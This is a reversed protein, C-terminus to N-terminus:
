EFLFFQPRGYLRFDKVCGANKPNRLRIRISKVTLIEGLDVIVCHPFPCLQGRWQSHWFSRDDNDILSEAYGDKIQETNAYVVQWKDKPLVKGDSGILEIENICSHKNDYSSLTELCLHRLTKDYDLSFSQWGEKKELCGSFIIDGEDLVPTKDGYKTQLEIANKDEGLQDLIPKDLGAITRHGQDEMEFVVIENRGKKLWPGPVYLTQQPGINWFKGVSRGNIWVAGKGWGRTDIFTDGLKDLRFEGRFFGPQNVIDTNSWTFKSVKAQYLPLPSITWEKLEQGDLLVKETIGKLNHRIDGGYNMRGVNEVLIELRAPLETVDIKLKNQRHRRDLSGVQKGNLLVVAYDRLEKILLVGGKVKRNLHTEYHIYGFDQNVDEMTLPTVSVIRKTFAANLPASQELHITPFSIVPNEAPVEPLTVGAPLHGQIIERFAYYKPTANGYEGLPADYDYSTPQPEYGYSTNAGNTYCFNTGGHFMYMSLSVNHSLMWELREAPIKIARQTHPKGWVDFWAPYFEAVFYPGGPRVKDITRMIDEGIAGNVTALAGEVSGSRIQGTGDCTMLPVNFGAERIMDRLRSLYVKDNGYYGYENEVQVMLIPGGNTVTLSSLEKGLRDIYRKCANLFTEDKSRYIMKKNKQLWYPYGGFDWEACVYPGPRLIVYLGEEQATKIFKALDVQGKFDFAGPQREHINWFVYTSITNIGMAKARQMRDRWYEQPIRPYHMEGCIFQFPKGNILFVSDKIEFSIRSSKCWACLTILFFLLLFGIKKM